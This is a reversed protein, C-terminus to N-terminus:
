HIGACLTVTTSSQAQRFAPGQAGCGADQMREALVSVWRVGLWLTAVLRRIRRRGCGRRAIAGGAVIDDDHQPMRPLAEISLSLFKRCANQMRRYAAEAARTTRREISSCRVAPRIGDASSLKMAAYADLLSADDPTTVLVVLQARLWFRRTWATLGYGADVVIFDVEGHLTELESLLQQQAGRSDRWGYALRESVRTRTEFLRRWM